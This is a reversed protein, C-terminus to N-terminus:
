NGDVKGRFVAVTARLFPVRGFNLMAGSFHHNSTPLSSEKQSPINEPGINFKWPTSEWTKWAERIKAGLKALATTGRWRVTRGSHRRKASGSFPNKNRRKKPFRRPSGKRFGYFAIPFIIPIEKKPCWLGMFVELQTTTKLHKPPPAPTWLSRHLSFKM